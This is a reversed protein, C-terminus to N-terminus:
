FAETGSKVGTTNFDWPREVIIAPGSTVKVIASADMHPGNTSTRLDKDVDRTQRSGALVTHQVTRTTPPNTQVLYTITISAALSPDPNQITLYEQFSNGVSGADFYWTMSAPAGAPLQSRTLQVLTNAPAAKSKLYFALAGVTLLIVLVPIFVFPSIPRLKDGNGEFHPPTFPM